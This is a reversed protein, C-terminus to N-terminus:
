ELSQIMAQLYQRSQLGFGKKSMEAALGGSFLALKGNKNKIRMWKRHLLHDDTLELRL